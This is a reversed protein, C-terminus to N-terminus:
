AAAPVAQRDGLMAAVLDRFDYLDGFEISWNQTRAALPARLLDLLFLKVFAGALLAGLAPFHRGIWFAFVLGALGIVAGLVRRTLRRNLFRVEPVRGPALRPLQWRFVEPWLWLYPMLPSSPRLESVDAGAQEVLARVTLFAGTALCPRGLVPVPEIVPVEVFQALAMCLGRVTGFEWVRKWWEDPLPGTEFYLEVLVPDFAVEEAALDKLETDFWLFERVAEGSQGTIRGYIDRLGDLVEDATMPRTRIPRDGSM